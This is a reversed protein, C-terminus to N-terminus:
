NKKNSISWESCNSYHYNLSSIANKSFIPYNFYRQVTSVGLKPFNEANKLNQSIINKLMMNQGVTSDFV